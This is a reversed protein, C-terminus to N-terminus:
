TLLVQWQVSDQGGGAQQCFLRTKLESVSRTERERGTKEGEKEDAKIKQM